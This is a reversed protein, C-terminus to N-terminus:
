YTFSNVASKDMVLVWGCGQTPEAWMVIKSPEGSPGPTPDETTQQPFNPPLGLSAPVFELLTYAHGDREWRTLAAPATGLRVVGASTLKMNPAALMIAPFTVRPQLWAQAQRPDSTAIHEAPPRAAVTKHLYVAMTAVSHMTRQQQWKTIGLYSVWGAAILVIVSAAIALQRPTLLESVPRQSWPVPKEAPKPAADSQVADQDPIALLRNELGAPVPVRLLASKFRETEELLTSWERGAPVEQDQNIADTPKGNIGTALGAERLLQARMPDHEPLLAAQELKERPTPNDFEEQM